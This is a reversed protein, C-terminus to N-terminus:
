RDGRLLIRFPSDEDPEPESAEAADPRAGEIPRDVDDGVALAVVHPFTSLWDIAKHPDRIAAIEAIAEDVAVVAELELEADREALARIGPLYADALDTVYQWEDEVTEALDALARYAAAARAIVGSPHPPNPGAQHSM